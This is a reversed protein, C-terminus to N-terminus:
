SGSTKVLTGLVELARRPIAFAPGFAPISEDGFTATGAGHEARWIHGLVIGAATKVRDSVAATTAHRGASTVVVINQRGSAFTADGGGSRRHLLGTVSDWLYASSPKSANTEATLVTATTSDYETVSTFSVVPWSRLAISVTGGDYNETVARSVFPGCIEDLRISIATVFADLEDDAGRPLGDLNLARQAELRTLLDNTAM